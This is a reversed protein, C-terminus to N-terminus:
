QSHSKQPEGDVALVDVDEVESPCWASSPLRPRRGSASGPLWSSRAAQVPLTTATGVPPHRRVDCLFLPADWPYMAILSCPQSVHDDGCASGGTREVPATVDRVGRGAVQPVSVRVSRQGRRPEERVHLYRMGRGPRGPESGTRRAGPPCCRHAVGHPLM